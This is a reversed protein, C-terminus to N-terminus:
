VDDEGKPALIAMAQVAQAYATVIEAGGDHIFDAYEMGNEIAHRFNQMVKGLTAIAVKSEVRARIMDTDKM